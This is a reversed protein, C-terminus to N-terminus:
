HIPRLGTQNSSVFRSIEFQGTDPNYLSGWWIGDNFWLKSQNESATPASNARRLTCEPVGPYGPERLSCPQGAYRHERVVLLEPDPFAMFLFKLAFSKRDFGKRNFHVSTKMFTEKRKMRSRAPKIPYFSSRSSEAQNFLRVRTTFGKLLRGLRAIEREYRRQAPKRSSGTPHSTSKRDLYGCSGPTCRAINLPLGVFNFLFRNKLSFNNPELPYNFMIMDSRARNQMFAINEQSLVQRFRGISNTSIQGAERHGYSSNGGDDRFNEEGEMLLMAPSYEEEIFACIERLTGEPSAVLTEYRVTMYQKSYRLLNRKALGVSDLWVATGSGVGGRIVKWRKLASAYRDRPDRIMHLIRANPYATFIEDAYRESNLSKDGWRTKGFRDAIQKGILEFLRAYSPEGQYFKQRLDVFDLKLVSIRIYLM